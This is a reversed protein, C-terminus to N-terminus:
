QSRPDQGSERQTFSQRRIESGQNDNRREQDILSLNRLLDLAQLHVIQGIRIVIEM